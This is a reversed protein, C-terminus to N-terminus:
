CHMFPVSTVYPIPEGTYPSGTSATVYKLRWEPLPM